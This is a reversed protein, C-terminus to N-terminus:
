LSRSLYLVASTAPLQATNLNLVFSTRLPLALANTFTHSSARCALPLRVHAFVKYRSSLKTTTRLNRHAAHYRCPSFLMALLTLFPTLNGLIELEVFIQRSTQSADPRPCAIEKM